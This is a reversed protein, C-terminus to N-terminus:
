FACPRATATSSPPPIMAERYPKGEEIWEYEGFLEDPIRLALVVDGRAGENEDLPYDSVFVGTQMHGTMYTGAGDRFGNRLIEDVHHTRHYVIVIVTAPHQSVRGYLYGM